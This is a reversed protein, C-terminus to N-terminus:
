FLPFFQKSFLRNCLGETERSIIKLSVSNSDMVIPYVSMCNCLSYPSVGSTLKEEMPM